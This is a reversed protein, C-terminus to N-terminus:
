KIKLPQYKKFWNFGSQGMQKLFTKNNKPMISAVYHLGFYQQAMSIYGNKKIKALCKKAFEEGAVVRCVEEIRKLREKIMEVKIGNYKKNFASLLQKDSLEKYKENHVLANIGLKKRPLALKKPYGLCLLVVPFVGKPLRLMKRLQPIFELSTGIYVSGLGLSDAATCINQACIITDQFSIWFHRFASRATFPAIELKAWRELRHFDICFILNIPAKAIFGQGSLKAIKKKTSINKIKIISYPQLNGGTPAHIGAELIYRLVRPPIKKDSFNRLSAREMLLRITENPYEGMIGEKVGHHSLKKNDKM